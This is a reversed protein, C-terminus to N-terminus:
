ANALQKRYFPSFKGHLRLSAKAYASAALGKTKYRGLPIVSGDVGIQAVFLGPRYICVSVGKIGTSSRKSALRNMGNQSKTALRLNELRNDYFDGNVHDIVMGEPIAGYHMEWVIRHARHMVNHIRIYVSSGSGAGQRHGAIKGAYKANWAMHARLSKSLERSREKWVLYGTTPDYTFYTFWKASVDDSIQAYTPM